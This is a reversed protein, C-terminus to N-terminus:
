LWWLATIHFIRAVNSYHNEKEYTRIRVMFYYCPLQLYFAEHHSTPSVFIFLRDLSHKFPHFLYAAKSILSEAKVCHFLIFYKIMVSIAWLRFNMSYNGNTGAQSQSLSKTHICEVTERCPLNFVFSATVTPKSFMGVAKMFISFPSPSPFNITLTQLFGDATKKVHIILRNIFDEYLISVCM